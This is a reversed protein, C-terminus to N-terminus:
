RVITHQFTVTGTPIPATVAHVPCVMMTPCFWGKKPYYDNVYVTYNGQQDEEICYIETSYCGNPKTGMATVIVVYTEFDIEPCEPPPWMVAYVQNWFNCFDTQNDIVFDNAQCYGSLGAKLVTSFQVNCNLAFIASGTFVLVLGAILLIRSARM